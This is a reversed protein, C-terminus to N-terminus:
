MKWLSPNKRYTNVLNGLMIAKQFNNRLASKVKNKHSRHCM